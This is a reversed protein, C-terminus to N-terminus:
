RSASPALPLVCQIHNGKETTAMTAATISSSVAALQDDTLHLVPASLLALSGSMKEMIVQTIALNLGISPYPELTDLTPLSNLDPVKTIQALLDISESWVTPSREDKIDIQAKTPDANMQATVLITGEDMQYIATTVLNTLVQRLWRRDGMIFIDPTPQKIMLKLNRNLAQLHTLSELESLMEALSLPELMLDITGEELKSINTTENLLALLKQAATYSQAVFEREEEPSDCLDTLILQQLSMISNLPSRLEHSARALFGAKFQGMEVAMRYAIELAQLKKQLDHAPTDPENESATSSTDDSPPKPTASSRWRSFGWGLLIGIILVAPDTWTM